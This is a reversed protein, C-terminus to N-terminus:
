KKNKRAWDEALYKFVSTSGDADNSLKGAVKSPLQYKGAILLQEDGGATNLYWSQEDILNQTEKFNLAPKNSNNKYYAKRKDRADISKQKEGELKLQHDFKTQALGKQYEKEALLKNKAQTVKEDSTPTVLEELKIRAITKQAPTMNTNSDIRNFGDRIDFIDGDNVIQLAYDSGVKTDVITQQEQDFRTSSQKRSQNSNATRAKNRAIQSAINDQQSEFLAPQNDVNFQKEQQILPNMISLQDIGQRAEERNLISDANDQVVGERTNAYDMAQGMIKPDLGQFTEQAFQNFGVPDGEYGFLKNRVDGLAIDNDRKTVKEGYGSLTDAFANLGNNVSANGQNFLSAALGGNTPVNKWTPVAM